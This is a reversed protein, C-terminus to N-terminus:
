IPKSQKYIRNIAQTWKGYVLTQCIAQVVAVQVNDM